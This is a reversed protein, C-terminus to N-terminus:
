YGDKKGLRRMRLDHEATKPIMNRHKDCAVKYHDPYRNIDAFKTKKERPGTRSLPTSKVHEFELRRPATVTCNTFQCGHKRPAVKAILAKKRTRAWLNQRNTM